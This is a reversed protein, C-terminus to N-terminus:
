QFHTTSWHGSTAIRHAVSEGAGGTKMMLEVYLAMGQRADTKSNYPGISTGERTSFYWKATLAFFGTPEFGPKKKKAM